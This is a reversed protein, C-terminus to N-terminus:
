LHSQVRTGGGTPVCCAHYRDESRWRFIRLCLIEARHRVHQTGVGRVRVGDEFAWERRSRGAPPPLEHHGDGMVGDGPLIQDGLSELVREMNRATEEAKSLKSGAILRSSRLVLGRDEPQTYLVDRFQRRM